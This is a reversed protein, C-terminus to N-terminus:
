SELYGRINSNFWGIIADIERKDKWFLYRDRWGDADFWAEIETIKKPDKALGDMFIFFFPKDLRAINACRTQIGPALYKCVREHANGGEKQRKSEIFAVRRSPIYTIAFDPIIGWKGYIRSLHKPKIVVEYDVQGRLYTQLVKFAVEDRGSGSISAKEQWNARRSLEDRAM